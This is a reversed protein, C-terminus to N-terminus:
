DCYGLGKLKRKVDEKEKFDMRYKEAKVELPIDEVEIPNAKLVYPHFAEELFKGDFDKPAPLGLSYLITPALDMIHVGRLRKGKKIGPGQLVFLGDPRHIGRLINKKKFFRNRIRDSIIYGHHLTFIIDPAKEMGPGWYVDERRFVQKIVKRNDEEDVLANLEEIIRYRVEKYDEPNVVGNLERGKLNIIIGCSQTVNFSYAQTTAWDIGFMVKGVASKVKEAISPINKQRFIQQDSNGNPHVWQLKTALFGKKELWSNLYFTKYIPGFGHDSLILVVDEERLPKMLNGIAEDIKLYLPLLYRDKEQWLLHQMWDTEMVVLVFFDWEKTMLYNAVSFRIEVNKYIERLFKETPEEGHFARFTDVDMDIWWKGLKEELEAKMEKPYLFDGQSPTPIGSIMVGEIKEPPYTLPVYLIISKKGAEGAIDWLRKSQIHSSNVLIKEYSNEKYTIFDLVGHKGPNVGTTFSTWAPPSIPPITSELEGYASKELMKKFHPLKGAKIWPDLLDFTAGDMGIVFVRKSNKKKAM